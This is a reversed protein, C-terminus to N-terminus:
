VKGSTVHVAPAVNLPESATAAPIGGEIVLLVDEKTVRGGKGTGKITSIDLNHKKALGRVAPVALSKIFQSPEKAAPTTNASPHPAHSPASSSSPSSPAPASPKAAPADGEGEADIDILATGVRAMDGVNYHLKKIVGDFRSTIEVSAKDSQVECIKDFQNVADGEKV